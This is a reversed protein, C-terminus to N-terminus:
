LHDDHCRGCLHCTTVLAYFLPGSGTQHIPSYKTLFSKEDLTWLSFQTWDPCGLLPFLTPITELHSLFSIPFVQSFSLLGSHQPFLQFWFYPKFNALPLVALCSQRRHPPSMQVQSILRRWSERHFSSINVFCLTYAAERISLIKNLNWFM